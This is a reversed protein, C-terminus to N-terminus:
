QTRPKKRPVQYKAFFKPTADKEFQLWLENFRESTEPDLKKLKTEITYPFLQTYIGMSQRRNVYCPETRKSFPLCYENKLKLKNDATLVEAVHKNKLSWQELVEMLRTAAKEGEIKYNRNTLASLLDTTVYEDKLGADDYNGCNSLTAKFEEDDAAQQSLQRVYERAERYQGIKCLSFMQIYARTPGDSQNLTPESNQVPFNSADLETQLVKNKAELVENKAELVENKTQLAKNEAELAENKAEFAQIQRQLESMRAKVQTVSYSVREISESTSTMNEIGPQRYGM